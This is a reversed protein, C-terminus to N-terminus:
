LKLNKMTINMNKQQESCKQKELTRERETKRERYVYV